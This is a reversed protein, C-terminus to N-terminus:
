RLDNMEEEQLNFTLTIPNNLNSLEVDLGNVRVKAGGPNGLLISVENLAAKEITQGEQYTAEITEQDDVNLRIWCLGTFEVELEIQEGNFLRYFYRRGDEEQVLQIEPEKNEEEPETVEDENELPFQFNNSPNSADNHEAPQSVPPNDDIYYAQYIKIGAFVLLVLLLGLAMNNWIGEGRTYLPKEKKKNVEKSKSCPAESQGKLQYYKEMIVTEDLGLAKAFNRLSGKTYVEGPFVELNGEEIAQLYRPQIKTIEFIEEYSMGKNERASRLIEGLEKM